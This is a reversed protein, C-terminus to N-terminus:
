TFPCPSNAICSKELFPNWMWVVSDYEKGKSGPQSAVKSSKLIQKRELSFKYDSILASDLVLAKRFASTKEEEM